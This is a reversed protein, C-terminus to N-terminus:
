EISKANKSKVIKAQLRERLYPYIQISTDHFVYSYYYFNGSDSSMELFMGNHCYGNYFLSIYQPSEHSYITFPFLSLGDDFVGTVIVDHFSNNCIEIQCNDFFKANPPNGKKDQIANPHRHLSDAYSLGQYFFCGILIMKLLYKM